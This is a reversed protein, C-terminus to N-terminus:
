LFTANTIRNRDLAQQTSMDSGVVYANVPQNQQAAIGAALQNTGSSGVINFQAQPGGGGTSAGGGGGGSSKNWSTLTTALISAISAGAIGWNIPIAATSAAAASIYNAGAAGYAAASVPDVVALSAAM